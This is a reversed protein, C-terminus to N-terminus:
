FTHEYRGHEAMRFTADLRFSMPKVERPNVWSGRGILSSQAFAAKEPL